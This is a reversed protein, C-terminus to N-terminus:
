YLIGVTYAGQNHPIATSSLTARQTTAAPRFRNILTNYKPTTTYHLILFRATSAASRHRCAPPTALPDCQHYMRVEGLRGNVVVDADRKNM